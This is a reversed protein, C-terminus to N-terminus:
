NLRSFRNRKSMHYSILYIAFLIPFSYIYRWNLPHYIGVWKLFSLSCTTITAYATAKVFPNIDPKFQLFLMVSIPLTSISWPLYNSTLPFVEYHYHWLGLSSGVLDLFSSILAVFFGVFLLRDISEKRRFYLWLIISIIFVIVGIWWQWTFLSNDLWNQYKESSLQVEKRFYQDYVEKKIM